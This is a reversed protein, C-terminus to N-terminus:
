ETPSPFTLINESKIKVMLLDAAGYGEDDKRSIYGIRYNGSDPSYYLNDRTNNVPYGINVPTTWHKGKKESYFIDFGGMNYHGKSSFFIIEPSKIMYAVQEDFETNIIKGLNKAKGWEGEKTVESIFIDLGGRSGSRDSSFFIVKEEPGFSAHLELKSSNVKGKLIKAETWTGDVLESLYIDANNDADKILLLRSGDASLGSPYFEGDSLIQPNINLAKQWEGEKKVSYFIADYFQLRRVFVLTNGDASIVPKEESFGSNINEGLNVMELDLPADQIIKARECSKIEQDVINLNYNGYYFPSDIFKQYSELANDLQNDIRYVNGLYFYAHLPAAKESFSKKNYSKKPVIRKTARQFFPIALQEKGPINMYCEGVKFNFNAQSSDAAVLKVFYLVADEYDERAFFYQGENFFEELEAQTQSFLLSSLLTNIFLLALIRQM